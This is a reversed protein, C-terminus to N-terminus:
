CRKPLGLLGRAANEAALRAAEGSRPVQESADNSSAVQRDGEIVCWWWDGANMWEARLVFGAWEATCDDHLDGAWRPREDAALVRWEDQSKSDAM